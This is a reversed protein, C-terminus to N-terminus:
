TGSKRLPPQNQIEFEKKIKIHFAVLTKEAYLRSEKFRNKKKFLGQSMRDMDDKIKNLSAIIESRFMETCKLCTQQQLNFTEDFANKLQSISQQYEKDQRYADSLTYYENIESLTTKCNFGGRPCK